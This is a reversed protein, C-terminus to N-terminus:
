TLYLIKVQIQGTDVPVTWDVQAGTNDYIQVKIGGAEVVDYSTYYKTPNSANYVVVSMLSAIVSGTLATDLIQLDYGDASLSFSTTAGGKPINNETGIADSNFISATSCKVTSATTGNLIDLRLCRLTRQTGDSKITDASASKLALADFVSNGDPAHTTDGDSISSAIKGAATGAPDYDTSATYAATGLGLITKVEALTKKVFTGSGSAVLFDNIATALAHTVYDTSATYAASGLGLITKFEALTKKVWSGFPSPAGVLVDNQATALAHSIKGSVAVTEDVTLVQGANNKITDFHGQQVAM